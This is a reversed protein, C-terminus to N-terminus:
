RIPVRRKNILVEERRVQHGNFTISTLAGEEQQLQKMRIRIQSDEIKASPLDAEAKVVDEESPDIRNRLILIIPSNSVEFTNKRLNALVELNIRGSPRGM